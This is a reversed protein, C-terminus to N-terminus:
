FEEEEGELLALSQKLENRTKFNQQDEALRIGAHFIEVAKEHEGTLSYTNALKYYLGLYEPSRERLKELISIGEPIREMNICELALAYHLFDDNPQEELMKQIQHYREMYLTIPWLLLHAPTGACRQAAFNTCIKKIKVSCPVLFLSYPTLFLSYPVLLLSCLTLFLSCLSYANDFVGLFFRIHRIHNM